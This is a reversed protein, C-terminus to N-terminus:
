PEKVEVLKYKINENDKREGKDCRFYSCDFTRFVCDDCSTYPVVRITIETGISLEQQFRFTNLSEYKMCDEKNNFRTGDKAVYITKVEM